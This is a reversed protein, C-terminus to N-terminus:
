DERNLLGPLAAVAAELSDFWEDTPLVLLEDGDIFQNPLQLLTFRHTIRDEYITYKLSEVV